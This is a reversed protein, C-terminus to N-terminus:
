ELVFVASMIRMQLLSMTRVMFCGKLHVQNTSPSYTTHSVNPARDKPLIKIVPVLQVTSSNIVTKRAAAATEVSNLVRKIHICNHSTYKCTM